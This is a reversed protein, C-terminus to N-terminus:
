WLPGIHWVLSWSVQAASQLLVNVGSSCSIAAGPHQRQGVGGSWM